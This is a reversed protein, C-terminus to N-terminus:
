QVQSVGSYGLWVSSRVNVMGLHKGHNCYFNEQKSKPSSISSSKAKHSNYGKLPLSTV